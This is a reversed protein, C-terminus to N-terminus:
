AMRTPKPSTDALNMLERALTATLEARLDQRTAFLNTMEEPDNALDFLEGQEIYQYLSLRAEETVLTRARFPKGIVLMDFMEPAVRIDMEVFVPRLAALSQLDAANLEGDLVYSRLLLKLEPEKSVLRDVLKPYSLLPLPVMTVDPRSLEEAEGGWIAKGYAYSISEGNEHIAIAVIAPLDRGDMAQEM